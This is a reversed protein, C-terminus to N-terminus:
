RTFAQVPSTRTATVSVLVGPCGREVIRALLREAVRETEYHGADVLAIRPRGDPALAEFWRHYTIDATVFADARSGLAAPLFSMGSGGCVAVRSVMRGADGVYKVAPQELRESVRSLFAPLPEPAPLTGFAGFGEDVTGGVLAAVDTAPEEYPHAAAIARRVAEARWRPAVAEVRVEDALEPTGVEGVAPTAGDMPTFRGEGPTSFSCGAYRAFQGAGAATLAARVADAASPPVFTTVKVLADKLPALVRVNALGLQEALAVSVGDPAADLNTHAALCAVGHRALSLILAGTADDATLRKPPKFLLPHHTVIMEAGTEVAEAVVAPTLDLATLVRTVSAAPDGVLLGVNDWEAAQGPPVAAHVARVVDAVTM